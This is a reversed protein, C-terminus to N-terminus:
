QDFSSYDIIDNCAEIVHEPFCSSAEELDRFNNITFSETVSNSIRCLM